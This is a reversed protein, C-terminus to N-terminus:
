QNDTTSVVTVRIGTLPSPVETPFDVISPQSNIITSNYALPTNPAITFLENQNPPAFFEVRFGNV